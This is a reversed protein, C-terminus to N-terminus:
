STKNYKKNYISIRDNDQKLIFKYENISFKIANFLFDIGKKYSTIVIIAVLLYGLMQFTIEINTMSFDNININKQKSLLDMFQKLFITYTLWSTSVIWKLAKIRENSRAYLMNINVEISELINISKINNQYFINLIKEIHSNKIGYFAYTSPIAFFVLSTFIIITFITNELKINAFVIDYLFVSILMYFLIKIFKNLPKFLEKIGLLMYGASLRYDQDIYKSNTKFSNLLSKESEELIKKTLLFVDNKFM